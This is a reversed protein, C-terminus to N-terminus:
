SLVAICLPVGLDILHSFVGSSAACAAGRQCLSKLRRFILKCSSSGVWGFNDDDNSISIWILVVIAGDLIGHVVLEKPIRVIEVLRPVRVM